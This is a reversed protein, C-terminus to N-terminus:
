FSPHLFRLTICLAILPRLPSIHSPNFSTHLSSAPMFFLLLRYSGQPYPTFSSPSPPSPVFKMDVQDVESNQDSSTLHRCSGGIGKSWRQFREEGKRRTMEARKVNSWQKKQSVIPSSHFHSIHLFPLSSTNKYKIVVKIYVINGFTKPCGKLDSFGTCLGLDMFVNGCRKLTCPSQHISTLKSLM